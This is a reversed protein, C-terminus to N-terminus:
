RLPSILFFIRAKQKIPIIVPSPWWILTDVQYIVGEGLFLWLLLYPPAGPSRSMVEFELFKVSTAISYKHITTQKKYTYIVILILYQIAIAYLNKQIKTIKYQM